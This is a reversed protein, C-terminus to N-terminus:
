SWLILFTSELIIIILGILCFLVLVFLFPLMPINRKMWILDKLAILCRLIADLPIFFLVVGLNFGCILCSGCSLDMFATEEVM